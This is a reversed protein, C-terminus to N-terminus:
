VHRHRDRDRGKRTPQWPAAEALEAANAGKSPMRVPQPQPQKLRDDDFERM